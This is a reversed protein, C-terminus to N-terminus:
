CPTPNQWDVSAVARLRKRHEISTTVFSYRGPKWRGNPCALGVAEASLTFGMNPGGEACNATRFTRKRLVRRGSPVYDIQGKVDLLRTEACPRTDDVWVGRLDVGNATVLVGSVVDLHGLRAAAFVEPEGAAAASAAASLAALATVALARVLPEERGGSFHRCFM